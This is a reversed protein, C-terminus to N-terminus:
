LAFLVWAVSTQSFHEGAGNPVPMANTLSASM